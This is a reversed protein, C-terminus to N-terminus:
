LNTGEWNTKGCSPCHIGAGNMMAAVERSGPLSSGVRPKGLINGALMALAETVSLEKPCSGCNVYSM